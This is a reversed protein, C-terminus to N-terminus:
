RPLRRVDPALMHTFVSTLFIFDFSEDDYPFRYESAAFAGGPNYWKNFIDANQFTFNPYRATITRQAWDVQSKM